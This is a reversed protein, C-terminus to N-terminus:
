FDCSAVILQLSKGRRRNLVLWATVGLRRRRSRKWESDESPDEEVEVEEESSSIAVVSPYTDTRGGNGSRADLEGLCIGM